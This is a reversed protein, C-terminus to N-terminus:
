GIRSVSLLRKLDDRMGERDADPPYSLVLNGHPDAVYVRGEEGPPLGVSRLLELLEAGDPEDVSTM